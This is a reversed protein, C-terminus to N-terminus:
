PAAEAQQLKAVAAEMFQNAEDREATMADLQSRLTAIDAAGAKADAFKVLFADVAQALAETQSSMLRLREIILLQSQALIRQHRLIARHERSAGFPWM